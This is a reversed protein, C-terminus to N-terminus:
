QIDIMNKPLCILHGVLLLFLDAALTFTHAKGWNLEQAAQESIEALSLRGNFLNFVALNEPTILFLSQTSPSTKRRGWVRDHEVLIEYDPNMIPIVQALQDDSLHSLESLRFAPVGQLTRRTVLLEQLLATFFRRRTCAFSLERQPLNTNSKPKEM